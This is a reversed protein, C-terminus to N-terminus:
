RADGRDKQRIKIPTGNEDYSAPDAAKTQWGFMSGALMAEEQAKSVGLESNHGDALERNIERSNHKDTVDTYGSEGKRITILNGNSPLVSYCLDPLSNRLPIVTNGAQEMREAFECIHFLNRGVEVHYDDIYRCIRDFKEGDSTTIRIKGGDPIRFLEKYDPDIFRIYKKNDM